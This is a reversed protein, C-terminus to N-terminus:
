KCHLHNSQKLERELELRLDLERQLQFILLLGDVLYLNLYWNRNWTLTCDRSVYRGAEWGVVCCLGVWCSWSVVVSIVCCCDMGM